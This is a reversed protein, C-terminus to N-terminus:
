GLKVSIELGGQHSLLVSRFGNNPDRIFSTYEAYEAEHGGERGTPQVGVAFAQHRVDFAVHVHFQTPGDHAIVRGLGDSSNSVNQMVEAFYRM